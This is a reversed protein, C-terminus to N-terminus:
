NGLNASISLPHTFFIMTFLKIFYGQHPSIDLENLYTDKFILWLYIVTWLDNTVRLQILTASKIPATRVGKKQNIEVHM